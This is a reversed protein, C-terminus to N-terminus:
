YGEMTRTMKLSTKYGGTVNHTATNVIYKGDFAGFNKINVTIGVVLDLNGPVDFSAEYEGKNKERLRKEAIKLAEGQSTVKIDSVEFTQGDEAAGPASYTAEITKKTEPDTYSVHCKVYSTDNSSTSFSYNTYGGATRDITFVAEKAEYVEQDYLILMNNTVKLTLGADKCLGKIFVIDSTNVQEKRNYQPNYGSEFLLTYGANQAVEAAIGQLSYGEWAKTKKETRIKSAASISSAKFTLKQPPGDVNVTDVEFVGCDLVKEKGTDNYNKYIIAASITAGKIKLVNDAKLWRLWENDRDDISINLDDAKDESNDTYSFSNLYNNLTKTIDAGQFIVTLEVRRAERKKETVMETVIRKAATVTTQQPTVTIKNIAEESFWGKTDVHVPYPVGEKENLYTVTGSYNELKAGPAGGYSTYFPTGNVTVKDGKEIDM